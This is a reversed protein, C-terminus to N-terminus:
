RARGSRGKGAQRRARRKVQYPLIFLYLGTLWLCLLVVASPLFVGLKIKEHFWSGDHIDEILDSRRYATQLIRGDGIDIQIEWRNRAKVKVIGRDPQVDLRDIDDWGEIEAEPVQRARELIEAFSLRPERGAGRLTPPQIWDAQKKNTGGDIVVWEHNPTRIVIGEAQGRDLVTVRVSQALAVPTLLGVLALAIPLAFLNRRIKM